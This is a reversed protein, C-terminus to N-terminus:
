KLTGLLVPWVVDLMLPQASAVPHIRDPQFYKLDTGLKELFFPVLASKTEKAVDRYMAEFANTYTAGLNPPMRMGLILVKAGSKQALEVMKQLNAKSGAVPAGRLGDNGGLEIVVHTPSHKALLAPLRSVGGATTDGSISANTVKAKIKQADLKKGLLDVWGEGSALGYGASLSDGLVLIHPAKAGVKTGSAHAPTAVFAFSGFVILATVIWAARLRGNTTLMDFWAFGRFCAFSTM